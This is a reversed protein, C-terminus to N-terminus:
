SADLIITGESHKQFIMVNRWADQHDPSGFCERSTHEHKTYKFLHRYGRSPRMVMRSHEYVQYNNFSMPEIIVIYGEPKTVRIIENAANELAQEGRVHALTTISFVLDFTDDSFGYMNCVDMNYLMVHPHPYKFRAVKLMNNSIDIGHIETAGFEIYIPLIRGVGCGIDLVTMEEFDFQTTLYNYLMRTSTHNDDDVVVSQYGPLTAQNDWFEKDTAARKDSFHQDTIHRPLESMPVEIKM